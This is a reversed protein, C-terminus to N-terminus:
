QAKSRALNIELLRALLDDDSRGPQWGYAAFVAEDLKRHANKLWAPSENYLKTLTRTKLKAASADDKVTLRPLLGTRSIRAQEDLTV